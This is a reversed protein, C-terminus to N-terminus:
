ILHKNIIAKRVSKKGREHIMAAVESLTSERERRKETQIKIVMSYDKEGCFFLYYTCSATFAYMCAHGM